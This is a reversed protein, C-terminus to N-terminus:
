DMIYWTGKKIENFSISTWSATQEYTVIGCAESVSKISKGELWAQIAEQWTVSQPILEFDSNIVTDNVFLEDETNEWEYCTGTKILHATVASGNPYIMKFKSGVPYKALDTIKM